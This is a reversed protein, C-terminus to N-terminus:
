FSSQVIKHIHQATQGQEGSCYTWSRTSIGCLCNPFEKCTYKKVSQLWYRFWEKISSQSNLANRCNSKGQVSM